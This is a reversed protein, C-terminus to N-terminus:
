PDVERPNNLRKDAEARLLLLTSLLSSTRTTSRRILQPRWWRPEQYYGTASVGQPRWKWGHVARSTRKPRLHHPYSRGREPRGCPLVADAESKPQGFGAYKTNATPCNRSKATRPYTDTKGYTMWRSLRGTLRILTLLPPRIARLQRADGPRSRLLVRGPEIGHLMLDALTDPGPTAADMTGAPGCARLRVAATTSAISVGDRNKRRAKRLLRAKRRFCNTAWRWLLPGWARDARPCSGAPLRRGPACPGLLFAQRL